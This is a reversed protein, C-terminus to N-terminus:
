ELELGYERLAARPNAEDYLRVWYTGRHLRGPARLVLADNAPRATSEMVPAGNADVIKVRYAPLPAVGTLDLTLKLPMREPAHARLSDPGGRTSELAVAVPGAAGPSPLSPGISWLLVLAAVGACAFAPAPWRLLARLRTLRNEPMAPEAALTEVARRMTRVYLDTEQLREQCAQCILLHNEFDELEAGPVRGLCYEELRDDSAHEGLRM